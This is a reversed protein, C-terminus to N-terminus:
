VPEHAVIAPIAAISKIVADAGATAAASMAISAAEDIYVIDQAGREAIIRRRKQLYAM